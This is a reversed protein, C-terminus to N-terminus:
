SPAKDPTPVAPLAQQMQAEIQNFRATADDAAVSDPSSADPTAAAPQVDQAAQAAHDDYRAALEHYLADGGDDVTPYRGRPAAEDTTAGELSESVPTVEGTFLPERSEMPITASQEFLNSPVVTVYSSPAAERVERGPTIFDFGGTVVMNVGSVAGVAIGGFVACAFLRDKLVPRDALFESFM